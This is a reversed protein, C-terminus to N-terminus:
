NGPFKIPDRLLMPLRDPKKPPPPCTGQQRYEKVGPHLSLVEDLNLVEPRDPGSIELHQALLLQPHENLVRAIHCTVYDPVQEHFLLSVEIDFISLADKTTAADNGTKEEFATHQDEKGAPAGDEEFSVVRAGCREGTQILAPSVLGILSLFVDIEGECLARLNDDPTASIVGKLDEESLGNAALLDHWLQRTESGVVGLNVRKGPLDAISHIGSNRAVIMVGPHSVLSVGFRARPMPPIESTEEPQVDARVLISQAHGSNMLHINEDSGESRLPTCHIRHQNFTTRMLECIGAAVYFDNSVTPGSYISIFWEPPRRSDSLPTKYQAGQETLVPVSNPNYPVDELRDTNQSFAAEALFLPLCVIAQLLAFRNM